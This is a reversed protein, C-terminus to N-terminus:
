LIQSQRNVHIRKLTFTLRQHTINSIHKITLHGCCLGFYHAGCPGVFSHAWCPGGFSHGLLAWCLISPGLPGQVLLAGCMFGESHAWCPGVFPHAWCPGVFSHGLLSWCIFPGLHARSWCPEVCSDKLIPGVPGLGLLALHIRYPGYIVYM